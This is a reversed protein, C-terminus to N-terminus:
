KRMHKRTNNRIDEYKKNVYRAYKIYDNDDMMFPRYKEEKPYQKPEDYPEDDTSGPINFAKIFATRLTKVLNGCATAVESFAQKIENWSENM